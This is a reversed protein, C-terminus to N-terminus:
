RVQCSTLAEQASLMRSPRDLQEMLASRMLSPTLLEASQAWRGPWSVDGYLAVACGLIWAETAAIVLDDRLQARFVAARTVLAEDSAGAASERLLSALTDLEYQLDPYGTWLIEAHWLSPSLQDWWKKYTGIYLKATVTRRKPTRAPLEWYSGPAQSSLASLACYQEFQEHWDPAQSVVCVGSVAEAELLNRSRLARRGVYDRNELPVLNECELDAASSDPVNSEDIGECANVLGRLIKDSCVVSVTCRRLGLFQNMFEALKPPSVRVPVVYGDHAHAFTGWVARPGPGWPFRGLPDDFAREYVEARVIRIQRQLVGDTVRNSTVRQIEQTMYEVAHEQPISSYFRWYDPRTLANSIAGLERCRAEYAAEDGWPGAGFTVHEALHAWGDQGLAEARFGGPFVISFHVTTDKQSSPRHVLTLGSKMEIIQPPLLDAVM